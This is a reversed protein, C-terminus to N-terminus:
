DFASPSRSEEWEKLLQVLYQGQLVITEERLQTARLSGIETPMRQWTFMEMKQLRLETRKWLPLRVPRLEPPLRSHWVASM